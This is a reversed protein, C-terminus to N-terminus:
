RTARRRGTGNRAAPRLLENACAFLRTFQTVTVSNVEPLLEAQQRLLVEAPRYRDFVGGAIDHEAFYAGVARTVRPDGPGLDTISLERGRLGGAYALNVLKLYFDREFLDEVTAEASYTFENIEILGNVALRGTDRLRRVAETDATAADVM